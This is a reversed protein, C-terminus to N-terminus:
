SGASKLDSGVLEPERRAPSGQVKLSKNKGTGALVIGAEGNRNKVFSLFERDSAFFGVLIENVIFNPDAKVGYAKEYALLYADLTVLTPEPLKFSISAKKPPVEAPKIKLTSDM